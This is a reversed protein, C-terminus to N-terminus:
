PTLLPWSQGCEPCLRPGAPFSINNVTVSRASSLGSLDYGCERCQGNETRSIRRNYKRTFSSVVIYIILYNVIIWIAVMGRAMDFVYVTHLALWFPLVASVGSIIKISRSAYQTKSPSNADANLILKEFYLQFCMFIGIKLGYAYEIAKSRTRKTEPSDSEM